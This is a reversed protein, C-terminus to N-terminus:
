SNCDHHRAFQIECGCAGEPRGAKKRAVPIPSILASLLLEPNAIGLGHSNASHSFSSLAGAIPLPGKKRENSEAIFM